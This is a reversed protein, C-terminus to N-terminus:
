EGLPGLGTGIQRTAGGGGSAGAIVFVGQVQRDRANRASTGTSDIEYHLGVFRDVSSQPLGTEAGIYRTASSYHDTGAAGVPVGTVETPAAGPVAPVTGIDAIAEEIGATAAMAAARRYQENGAMVLETTATNMGTIALLTLILLLVLGIVLAAGRQPRFTAPVPTTKM